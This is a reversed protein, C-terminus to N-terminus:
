TNPPRPTAENSPQVLNSITVPTDSRLRFVGGSVVEDGFKLGDKTPLIQVQDGRSAGVKIFREFVYKQPKGDKALIVEKTKEDVKDGIVFVSDGYPSYNIASAPITMVGEEEPLLVEVTGFMGPRLKGAPNPLTGEIQINRTNEDVRSDIATIEGSFEEGPAGEAKVRLKKGKEVRALNLQPINFEIYIPDLSQLPAVPSGANLYQGVNVQRIGLQGDFPAQITKRAIVAKSEEVLSEAQRSEAVAADFEAQSTAKKSLLDKQRALTLKALELRAQASGLQATEQRTDLKLLLDGKKVPAGSEFCIESVIGGLDTSVMVGNVAKLSGVASLVPQWKHGEVTVTSVATPPPMMKMMGAIHSKIQFVKFAALGAVILVMIFLMIIIRKAM